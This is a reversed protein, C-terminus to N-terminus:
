GLASRRRKRCLNGLRSRRAGGHIEQLRRGSGPCEITEDIPPLREDCERHEDREHESCADDVAHDADELYTVMFLLTITSSCLRDDCSINGSCLKSPVADELLRM